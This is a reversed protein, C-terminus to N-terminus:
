FQYKFMALDLEYRKSVLSKLEKTYYDRYDRQSNKTKNLHPLTYEVGGLICIEEMAKDLDEFRGIYDVLPKGRRDIISLYQSRWHINSVEDPFSCLCRVFNDFTIDSVGQLERLADRYPKIYKVAAPNDFKNEYASVLRDFPNRVITFKFAEQSVSAALNIWPVDGHRWKAVVDKSIGHARGFAVKISSCACKAIEVYINKQDPSAIARKFDLQIEGDKLIVDSLFPSGASGDAFSCVQIAV